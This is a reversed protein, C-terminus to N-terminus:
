LGGAAMRLVEVPPVVAPLRLQNAPAVVPARLAAARTQPLACAVLFWVEAAMPRVAATQLVVRPESRQQRAAHAPRQIKHKGLRAPQPALAGALQRIRRRGRRARRAPVACRRHEEAVALTRAQALLALRVGPAARWITPGQSATGRVTAASRLRAPRPDLQHVVTTVAIVAKSRGLKTHQVQM